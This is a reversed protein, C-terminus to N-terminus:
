RPFDLEVLGVDKPIRLPPVSRSRGQRVLNGPFDPLFAVLTQQGQYVFNRSAPVFRQNSALNLNQDFAQAPPVGFPQGAPSPAVLDYNKFAGFPVAPLDHVQLDRAGAGKRKVAVRGYNIQPISASLKDVRAIARPSPM